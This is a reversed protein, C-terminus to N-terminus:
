SRFGSKFLRQLGRKAEFLVSKSTGERIDLIEGIERHTFGEVEFLLFVNRSRPDLQAVYKELTLRLPHDSTSTSFEQQRDTDLEPVEVRRKRKRMLDYCANILIRFAWTSLSSQARFSAINRYIRLFAEQVADEADSTNGLLNLAVSKMRASHTSYLSEFAHLNGRKCDEVMRQEVEPAAGQNQVSTLGSILCTELGIM